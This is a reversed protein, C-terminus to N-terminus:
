RSAPTLASARWATIDAAVREPAELMVVHGLDDYVRYTWDARRDALRDCAAREILRDRAGQLILAPAEIREIAQWLAARQPGLRLLLSRAATLYAAPANALARRQAVMAIHADLAGEDLSSPDALCLALVEAAEEAPTRVRRRRELYARGLLPTALTAFRRAVERDPLRTMPPVAPGVLVLGAVRDPNAAALSYAIHGGMSNGLLLVPADRAVVSCLGAVLDINDAVSASRTDTPTLGFGALDPAWVPGHAALLPGLLVWNVHSGGLGHLCLQVPADAPAGPAAPWHAAHVAADGRGRRLAAAPVTLRHLEPDAAM